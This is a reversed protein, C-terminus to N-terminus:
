DGTGRSRGDPPSVLAMIGFFVVFGAMAAEGWQVIAKWPDPNAPDLSNFTLPEGLAGAMFLFGLLVLVIVGINGLWGRRTVLLAALALIALAGLPPWMATGSGQVFDRLVNNPDGQGGFQYPVKQTIAIFAGSMAIALYAMAAMILRQRM